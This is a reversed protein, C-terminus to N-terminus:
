FSDFSEFGYISTYFNNYDEKLKKIMDFLEKDDNKSLENNNTNTFILTKIMSVGDKEYRFKRKIKYSTMLLTKFKEKTKCKFKNYYNKKFNTIKDLFLQVNQLNVRDDETFFNISVNM